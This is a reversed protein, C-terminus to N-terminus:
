CLYYKQDINKLEDLEEWSKRYWKSNIGSYIDGFLTGSFAGEKITKAPTKNAGFDMIFVGKNDLWSNNLPNIADSKSMYCFHIRFDSGKISVIAVDDFNMANQMLDHCGNCLYSEYNFNKCLFYWYHCISCEKSKDSKNLDIGESIDIGEYELM